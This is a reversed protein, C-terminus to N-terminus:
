IQAHEKILLVRDIVKGMWVFDNNNTDHMAGAINRGDSLLASEGDLSEPAHLTNFHQPVSEWVAGGDISGAPLCSSVTHAM